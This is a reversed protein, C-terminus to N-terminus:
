LNDVISFVNYINGDILVILDKVIIVGIEKKYIYVNIYLNNGIDFYVKFVIKNEGFVLNELNIEFMVIGIFLDEIISLSINNIFM